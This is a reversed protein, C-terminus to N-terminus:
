INVEQEYADIIFVLKGDEIEYREGFNVAHCTGNSFFTMEYGTKAKWTGVFRNIDSNSITDNCGSLGIFILLVAIGIIVIRNKM